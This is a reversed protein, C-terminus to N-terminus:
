DGLINKTYIVVFVGLITSELATEKESPARIDTQEAAEFLAKMIM